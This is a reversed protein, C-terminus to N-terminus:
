NYKQKSDSSVDDQDTSEITVQMTFHKLSQSNTVPVEDKEHWILIRDRDENAKLLLIM